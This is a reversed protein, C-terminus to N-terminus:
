VPRLAPRIHRAPQCMVPLISRWHPSYGLSMAVMVQSYYQEPILSSRGRVARLRIHTSSTTPSAIPWGALPPSASSAAGPIPPPPSGSPADTGAWPIASRRRTRPGAAWTSVTPTGPSRRTIASRGEGSTRTNSGSRRQFTAARVRDAIIQGEGFREELRRYLVVLAHAVVDALGADHELLATLAPM